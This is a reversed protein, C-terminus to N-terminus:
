EGRMSKQIAAKNRSTKSGRRDERSEQPTTAGSRRLERMAQAYEPNAVARYAGARNPVPKM